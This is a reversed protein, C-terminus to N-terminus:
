RVVLVPLKSHTLVKQTESGLLMASLGRRGHSAMVIADCKASKAAKLIAEWPSAALTQMRASDVGAADAKAAARALVKEAEKQALQAYEKKSVPDYIVGDAYAPMPYDPSAYFFSVKAHLAQALAVAHAVAKDSLKSGDTPVLLHAYM